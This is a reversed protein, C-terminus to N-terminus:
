NTTTWRGADERSRILFTAWVTKAGDMRVSVGWERSVVDVIYLGRGDMAQTNEALRVPLRPSGDHVKLTVLRGSEELAVTFPTGAHRMANTALESVVLRIDDALELLHHQALHLSVFDRAKSVSVPEADLKTDHSWTTTTSM